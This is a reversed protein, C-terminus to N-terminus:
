QPKPKQVVMFNLIALKQGTPGPLRIKQVIFNLSEGVKYESTGMPDNVVIETENWKVLYSVYTHGDSAATYVKLIPASVTKITQSTAGPIKGQGTAIGLTLILCLVITQINKM